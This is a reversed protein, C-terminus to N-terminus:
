ITENQIVLITCFKKLLCFFLWGNYLFFDLVRNLYFRYNIYYKWIRNFLNLLVASFVCCSYVYYFDYWILAMIIAVYYVVSINFLCCTM